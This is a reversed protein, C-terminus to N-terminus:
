APTKGLLSQHERVFNYHVILDELLNDTSEFNQTWAYNTRDKLTSHLREVTNNTEWTRVGVHHVFEPRTAKKM